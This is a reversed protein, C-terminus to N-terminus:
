HRLSQLESTHEESRLFGDHGHNTIIEAYSANVRAAQLREALQRVDEPPFLWDRTIGVLLTRAQVMSLDDPLDFTDQARSIVLYLDSSRRTPFSHLRC